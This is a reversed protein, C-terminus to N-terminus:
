EKLELTQKISDPNPSSSVLYLLDALDKVHDDSEPKTGSILIVLLITRMIWLKPVPLNNQSCHQVFKTSKCKDVDLCAFLAFNVGVMNMDAPM